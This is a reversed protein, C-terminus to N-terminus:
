CRTSARKTPPWHSHASFSYLSSAACPRHLTGRRVIRAHVDEEGCRQEEGRGGIHRSLHRRGLGVDHPSQLVQRLDDGDALDQLQPAGRADLARQVDRAVWPARLVLDFTLADDGRAAIALELQGLERVLLELSERAVEHVVLAADDAGVAVPQVRVRPRPRLGGRRQQLQADDFQLVHEQM